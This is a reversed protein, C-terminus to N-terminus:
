IKLEKGQEKLALQENIRKIDRYCVDCVKRHKTAANRGMEWVYGLLYVILTVVAGLQIVSLAHTLYNM